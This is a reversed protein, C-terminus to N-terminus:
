RMTSSHVSPRTQRQLWWADRRQLAEITREASLLSLLSDVLSRVCSTQKKQSWESLTKHVSEDYKALVADPLIADLPGRLGLWAELVEVSIDAEAETLEGATQMVLWRVLSCLGDLRADIDSMRKSSIEPMTKRVVSWDKAQSTEWLM